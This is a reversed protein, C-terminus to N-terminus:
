TLRADFISFRFVSLPVGACVAETVGNHGGHTLYWGTVQLLMTNSYANVFPLTNDYPTSSSRRSLLGHHCSARGM